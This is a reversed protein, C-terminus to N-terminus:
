AARRLPKGDAKRKRLIIIRCLNYVLVKELLEARVPELGRRRLQGFEQNNKLCFMLSEVASRDRRAQRHEESDWEEPPTVSKGVAGSMVVSEIELALLENRGLRSSYGDDSIFGGPVVGTREISQVALPVAEGSDAVNGEEVILATVLGNQSRGLQPKYGLISERNGKSIMAAATDSLSLIKRGALIKKGDFVREECYQCVQCAGLLDNNLLDWIRQLQLRRRPPLVALQHEKLAFVRKAEAGLYSEVKLARRLLRRYLKKRNGKTKARNIGLAFDRLEDVWRPLHGKRLDPVGFKSLHQGVRFARELLRVIMSSDTPWCSNAAVATSDVVMTNFDDLEDELAMQIECDLIFERTANTIANLNDGLTRPAPLDLGQRTVFAEIAISDRMRDVAKKSYVAGLFGRILLFVFVVCASLRPRGTELELDEAVIPKGSEDPMGHLQPTQQQEWRQQEIREAKQGKAWADLDADIRERIEPFRELMCEAEAIVEAMETDPAVLFLKGQNSERSLKKTAM